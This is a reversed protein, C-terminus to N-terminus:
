IVEKLKKENLNNVRLELKKRMQHFKFLTIVKCKKKFNDKKISYM